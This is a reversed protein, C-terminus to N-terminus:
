MGFTGNLSNQSAAVEAKTEEDLRKLEEEVDGVLSNHELATKVSMIPKGTALSLTETEEKQNKPLYPTFVPEIDLLPVQASLSTDVVTGLVHKLLNIRRLFMEGFLEIKNEAKLHADMFKLKLATGSVDGMATMNEFSINPTQTLGYIHKELTELELKISEPANNWAMYDASAGPELQLVKGQEGKNAFGLVKGVVKIMPSGFYDNTDAFNSMLTEYRDILGQVLYWEPVDQQYYIVPIKMFPNAERKEEIWGNEAKLLKVVQDVTYIDLRIAKKGNELTSYERSFADLDGYEDYHPYLKDGLSTALLRVRLKFKSGSNIGVASKIKALLSAWFSADEILYWLEAAECEGFVKRALKRNFFDLKNDDWTKQVMAALKKQLDDGAYSRLKVAVGLLFGVARNVIIQQFGVPIRNVEEQSTDYLPNGKEDKRGNPKKVEKKPRKTLDFVGHQKPDLQKAIDEQSVKAEVKVALTKYVDAAPLTLIDKIM